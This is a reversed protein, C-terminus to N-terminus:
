VTIATPQAAAAGETATAAKGTRLDAPAAVLATTTALLTLATQIVANAKTILKETQYEAGLFTM